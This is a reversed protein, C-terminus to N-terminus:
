NGQQSGEGIYIQQLYDADTLDLERITSWVKEGEHLADTQLSFAVLHDLMKPLPWESAYSKAEAEGKALAEDHSSARFVVMREEFARRPKGDETRDSRFISRVSYWDQNSNHLQTELDRPFGKWETSESLKSQFAADIEADTAARSNWACNLKRYVFPLHASLSPSGDHETDEKIEKIMEDLHHQAQILQM